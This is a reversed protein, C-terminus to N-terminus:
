QFFYRFTHAGAKESTLRKRWPGKFNHLKSAIVLAVILQHPVFSQLNHPAEKFVNPTVSIDNSNIVADLNGQRYTVKWNTSPNLKGRIEDTKYIARNTIPTAPAFIVGLSM